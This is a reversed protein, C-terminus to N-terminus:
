KQTHELIASNVRQRLTTFFAPDRPYETLTLPGDACSLLIELTKERGILAELWNLARLDQMAQHLVVIRLSEEPVGNEGPYVKFADGAPFRGDADTTAYPDVHHGSWFTNYFNYGWQLFGTIQYRYLQVGLMRTRTSPMAIFLNTVDKYQSVCYYTWLNPVKNELFPAIHNIAPIPCTVAGTAYFAYDSLADMITCDEVYPAVLARAAVYDAMMEPRPEDSIHFHAADKIGLAHLQQMLAPLFARLFTAYAEGTAPTDWGFIRKYEGDVTAMIKPAYKAGWQTFLHSMEFYRMGCKQAMRVWRHLKEFGFIYQGKVVTVDVLQVTTREGDVATDLPPTFLPTLLMNYGRHVATRVFNEVIRWHDESFVPVRYYDALCDAHFWSTRKLTQEPLLGPLLTVTATASALVENKLVDVVTLTIPYDGPAFQGAPEVDIFFCQWQDAYIRMDGTPDGTRLDRLLDPYLGPTKRLYNDDAKPLTALRVPVCHVTRLRICDSLPSEARLTVSTLHHTEDARVALQFAICENQFGSFATQEEATLPADPFVKELCSLIKVQPM